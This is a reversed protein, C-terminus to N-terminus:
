VGTLQWTPAPFPVWVEALAVLAGLCSAVEGAERTYERFCSGPTPLLLGAKFDWHWGLFTEGRAQSESGTNDDRHWLM